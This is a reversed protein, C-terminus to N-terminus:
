KTPDKPPKLAIQYLHPWMKGTVFLRDQTPDYAIGNAVADMDEHRLTEPLGTLDLWARVRGTAPDIRAIRNTLWVNAFIEGKVWELENLNLVPQGADTVKVRRVVKLTKPDLFKLTATGDSMILQKGNQTLSWGEGTYRFSSLRKLTKIDWVFGIEDRWTLSYLRQGWNVVGEGFVAAPAKQSQLVAGDRLRVRRIESAGERGTSEILDGQHYILGETFAGTDHPYVKQITYGGVPTAATAPAIM